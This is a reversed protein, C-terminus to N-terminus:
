IRWIYLIPDNTAINVCLDPPVDPIVFEYSMLLAGAKMEKRAKQWLDPMAAPSLYAFVVDYQAFNEQEYNRLLFRVSSRSIKGRIYSILWPLPAIEVGVFQSDKKVLALKMLLGGLGSGVDIFKIPRNKPLQNLVIPVLEAKSPFYPVRTKAITWYLSALVVFGILYFKPPINILLFVVTLFPFFFQIPLWWWDLGLFLSFFTVACAYLAVGALLSIPFKFLQLFFYFLASVVIHAMLARFAPPVVNFRWPACEIKEDESPLNM